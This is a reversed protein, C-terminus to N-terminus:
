GLKSLKTIEVPKALWEKYSEFVPVVYPMSYHNDLAAQDDWEEYLYLSIDGEHVIFQRCGKEKLTPTIIKLIATKADEFFEAKPTIRALIFLQDSM